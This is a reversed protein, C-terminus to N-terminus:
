THTGQRLAAAAIAVDYEYYHGGWDKLSPDLIILKRNATPESLPWEARQTSYNGPPM